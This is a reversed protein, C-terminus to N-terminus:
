QGPALLYQGNGFIGFKDLAAIYAVKSGNWAFNGAGHAGITGIKTTGTSAADVYVGNAIFTAVCVNTQTSCATGTVWYDDITSGLSVPSAQVTGDAGVVMASVRTLGGVRRATTGERYTLVYSNASKNYAVSLGWEVDNDTDLETMGVESLKGQDSIKLRYAYLNRTCDDCDEPQKDSMISMIEGTTTNFAANGYEDLRGDSKNINYNKDTITGNRDVVTAFMDKSSNYDGMRQHWQVYYKHHVTDYIGKPVWGEQPTDSMSITSGLINGSGDVRVAYIQSSGGGGSRPTSHYAILWENDDPNHIALPRNGNIPAEPASIASFEKIIAGTQMNRLQMCACFPNGGNSDYLDDTQWGFM